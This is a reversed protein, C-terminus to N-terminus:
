TVGYKAYSGYCLTNIVREARNPTQTYWKSQRFNKAAADWQQQGILGLSNTFRSLSGVGLQFAMNILGDKRIDDLNSYIPGLFSHNSVLSITTSIDSNFISQAEQLTISGNTQRNVVKNLEGIAIVYSPNKTVLHGIGITWYGLTDKYLSLKLGEDLTLANFINM